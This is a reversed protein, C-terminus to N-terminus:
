PFPVDDEWDCQAPRIVKTPSLKSSTRPFMTGFRVEHCKVCSGDAQHLLPKPWHEFDRPWIPYEKNLEQQEWIQYFTSHAPGIILWKLLTCISKIKGSQHVESNTQPDKSAGFEKVFLMTQFSPKSTLPLILRLAVQFNDQSQTQGFAGFWAAGGGMPQTPKEQAAWNSNRPLVQRNPGLGTSKRFLHFCPTSAPFDPFPQSINLCWGGWIM